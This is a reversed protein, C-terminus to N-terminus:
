ETASPPEITILNVADKITKAHLAGLDNYYKARQNTHNRFWRGLDFDNFDVFILNQKGDAVRLGRGTRQVNQFFSKGGHALVIGSIDPIDIGDNGVSSAVMVCPDHRKKFEKLAGQRYYKELSGHLMYVKDEGLSEALMKALLENHEIRHAIVLTKRNDQLLEKVAEVVATNRELNNCIYYDQADVFTMGTSGRKMEPPYEPKLFVVTFPTVYKAKKAEEMSISFAIHGFSSRILMEAITDEKEYPTASIGYRYYANIDMITEWTKTIQDRACIKHCEDCILLDFGGMSEIFQERSYKSDGRLSVLSPYMAVVVPDYDEPFNGDGLLGVKLDDGAIQNHLNQQTQYLLEKSPVGILTRVGLEQLIKAFIAAKGSGTPLKLVGLETKRMNELADIQAKRFPKDFIWEFEYVKDPKTRLDDVEILNPNIKLDFKLYGIVDGLLGIGFSGDRKNVMSKRGDWHGSKMAQSYQAGRVYASFRDAVKNIIVKPYAIRCFSYSVLIKIGTAEVEQIVSADYVRNIGAQMTGQPKINHILVRPRQKESDEKILNTKVIGKGILGTSTATSQSTQDESMETKPKTLLNPRPKSLLSM